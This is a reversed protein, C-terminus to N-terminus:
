EKHKPKIFESPSVNLIECLKEIDEAKVRVRGSLINSFATDNYGLQKAIEGFKYGNTKLYDKIRQNITRTM